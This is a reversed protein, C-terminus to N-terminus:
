WALGLSLELMSAQFDEIGGESFDFWRYELGWRYRDDLRGRLFARWDDRDVEFSRDNDYRRYSGGLSIDGTLRWSASADVTDARALYDIDFLVQRAGAMVLSDVSRSLDTRGLGASLALRTGSYGARVDFREADAHWGSRDNRRDTALYSATLSIGNDFRYRGRLRYRTTSTPSALTFPDDISDDEFALHLEARRSPRYWARVFYGDAETDREHLRAAEAASQRASVDRRETTAGVALRLARPPRPAPKSGRRHGM